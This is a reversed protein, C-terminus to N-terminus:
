LNDRGVPEFRIGKGQGYAKYAPRTTKFGRPDPLPLSNDERPEDERDTSIDEDCGLDLGPQLGRAQLQNPPEESEEIQGHEESDSGWVITSGKSRKPPESAPECSRGRKRRKSIPAGPCIPEPEGDKQPTGGSGGYEFHIEGGQDCVEVCVKSIQLGSLERPIGEPGVELSGQYKGKKLTKLLLALPTNWRPTGRKSHVLRAGNPGRVEGVTPRESGGCEPQVEPVNPVTNEHETEMAEETFENKPIEM